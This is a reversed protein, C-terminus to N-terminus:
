LLYLKELLKQIQFRKKQYFRKIKELTIETNRILKVMEEFENITLSSKHDPGKLNKNFTVHKEIVSAGLSTAIIPALFGPSHDSLGVNLNFIKKLKVMFRLNIYKLKAPYASVCHLLTINNRKLLKLADKIEKISAM